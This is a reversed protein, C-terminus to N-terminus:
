FAPTFTKYQPKKKSNNEIVKMLLQYALSCLDSGQEYNTTMIKLVEEIIGEKGAM